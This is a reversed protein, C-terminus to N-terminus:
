AFDITKLNPYVRCYMLFAELIADVFPDVYLQKEQGLFQALKNWCPGLMGGLHAGFCGLISGLQDRPPTRPGSFGSLAEWAGLIFEGLEWFVLFSVWGVVLAACISGM